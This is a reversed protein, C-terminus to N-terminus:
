TGTARQEPAGAGLGLSAALREGFAPEVDGTGTWASQLATGLGAAETGVARGGLADRLRATDRREWVLVHSRAHTTMVAFSEREADPGSFALARAAEHVFVSHAAHSIAVRDDADTVCHMRLSFPGLRVEDAETFARAGVVRTDNVFTGNTSELDTLLLREPSAIVRLHRRSVDEHALVLENEVGRGVDVELRDFVYHRVDGSREDVVSIRLAVRPSDLLARLERRLRALARHLRVDLTGLTVGLSEACAARPKGELLSMRILEADSERLHRLAREVYRRAERQEFAEDGSRVGSEGPAEARELELLLDTPGCLTERKARRIAHYAVRLAVVHLWPYVGADTWKFRHFSELVEVYSAALAEEALSPNGLRALLVRYLRARHRSLLEGLAEREGEQARASLERESVGELM